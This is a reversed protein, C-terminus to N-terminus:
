LVYCDYRIVKGTISYSPKRGDLFPGKVPRKIIVKKPGCSMAADFLEGENSCPREFQQILQLKKKVLSSKQREPFMPDLFVVDPSETIGSMYGISDSNLVEMRQAIDQLVPDVEARELADRLLSYIVRDSEFLKVTNGAAALLFSDEGLGATADIIRLTGEHGRIKAAKVIQESNVNRIRRLLRSFDGRIEMEGNRLALGEDTFILECEHDAESGNLCPVGLFASLADAKGQFESKECIVFLELEEAGNRHENM